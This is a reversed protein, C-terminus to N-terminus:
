GSRSSASRTPARTGSCSRRSSTAAWGASRPTRRRPVARLRAATGSWCRTAWRIASRTTSKRSTTSTSCCCPWRRQRVARRRALERQFLVRNALGTLPDHHALHEVEDRAQKELSIDRFFISLGDPTPYAQIRLWIQRDQVFIEFEEPQGTAMAQKYHDGEGSTLAAPFLEWVSIGISCSNASTSRRPRMITSTFSTGTATSCWCATAPARSCRPWGSSAPRWNAAAADRHRAAAAAAARHDLARPFRGGARFRIRPHRRALCVRRRQRPRQSQGFPHHRGGRHAPM